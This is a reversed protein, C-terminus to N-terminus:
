RAAVSAVSRMVRLMNGGALKALNEDSWGRRILEAIVRPFTSADELGEPNLGGFFDSGIGIHDHGIRKALYEVHDCYEALTAKPRPGATRVIEAEAKQYDLGEPTKGYQDKAPRHWDRSAQSIFDPVFTAMVLGDNKAVRDLVDDPVNRPHDCLSFANSHSWVVPATSVDLVDHMVKPAVHALDVVMGLRNMRGIVEKGFATLGNHRPADTASDCWDHTDNHCLTMLRVGLDWYADLADLENDLASGNEITMFLAIRGEKKAAEVDDASLGPRFVDAHREWIRRMLAIQALAFGAPKPHNPPVYAAFFQGALKGAQMRPIDTDTEPHVKGLDYAALDGKATRDLRVVFPLDNHGDILPVRDLLALAKDYAADTVPAAALVM